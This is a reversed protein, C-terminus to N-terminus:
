DDIGGKKDYGRAMYQEYGQMEPSSNEFRMYKLMATAMVRGTVGNRFKRILLEAANPYRTDEHYVVDRYPCIIIDADQEIAGSDRLDSMNPRKDTRSDVARNLQSLAIVPVDFEKALGKLGRSIEGIQNTYNQKRDVAEMLQIYDIAILGLGHERKIRRCRARVQPVSLGPTDDIYIPADMLISTASTMKPWDHDELKGTQIREYDIRGISAISREVLQARSMELSFVACPIKSHIAAAEVMNMMLASKGMAPRAAIIILDSKQLGRLRLDLADLRTPIGTIPNDNHYREDIRDMAESLAHRINVHGKNQKGSKVQEAIQYVRAEAGDLLQNIESDGPSYADSAIEEGVQILQRLVSRERVIDAYAKINAASPVDKALLGLYMLGGAKELEGRPELYESMTVVDRRTGQNALAACARFILRHDQRYFDEESIRDCIVDWANDSLMLGGLVAQEAEVSHPPIKQDAHIRNNAMSSHLLQVM